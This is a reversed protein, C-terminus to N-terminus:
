FRQNVLASGSEKDTNTHPHTQNQPTQPQNQPQNKIKTTSKQNQTQPLTHTVFSSASSSSMPKASLSSLSFFTAFNSSILIIYLLAITVMCIHMTVTVRTCKHVIKCGNINTNKKKTLIHLILQKKYKALNNMSQHPQELM